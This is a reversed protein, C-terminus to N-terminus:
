PTQCGRSVIIGFTGDHVSNSKLISTGPTLWIMNCAPNQSYLRSSWWFCFPVRGHHRVMLTAASISGGYFIQQGDGATDGPPYIQDQDHHGVHAEMEPMGVQGIQDIKVCLLGCWRWLQGIRHIGDSHADMGGDGSRGNIHSGDEGLNKLVEKRDNEKQTAGNGQDSGEPITGVSCLSAKLAKVGDIAVTILRIIISGNFNIM